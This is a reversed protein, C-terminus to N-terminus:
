PRLAAVCFEQRDYQLQRARIDKYGWTRIRFLYEPIHDALEWDLLKLTLLMGRVDVEPHTVIGEITDLMYTPAVNMDAMLWRVKRFERRRVDAGRKKVHTFNPHALVAPAMEAPDIGQVILGRALLVQSSGGPAAGIEACHQGPQIPLQSWRLAEEMKLYTRSVAEPPMTVGCFGGPWCSPPTTACHWGVWWEQPEVIVCDLVVQGPQVWTELPTGARERRILKAIQVDQPVLGPQYDREGPAAADRHWVHLGAVFLEGALRWVEATTQQPTEGTAKGLSVGCARAFISGAYEEANPEGPAKFTVFGPRAYAAHLDPWRRAFEAKLAREAGV